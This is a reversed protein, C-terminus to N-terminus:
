RRVAARLDTLVAGVTWENGSYIKLIRGDADALTTRLNHTIDIAGGGPRMVGVGFRAALRDVTIRDGTLFTWVAPDARLRRAHAALVDPTDHDPDFSVSILRVRGHLAPDEVVARQVTRFNQDMLPCFNPLPCRTYIFTVLVVSGRWENLARRRDDQDVLAADPLMDGAELVGAAMAVANSDDPLPADGHRTISVLRAGREDVEMTATVLEGARRGEMLSPSSVGFTMTMGPMYNEIDAHKITILQKDPQVALVQGKLTYRRPPEPAACSAIAIAVVIWGLAWQGNGM